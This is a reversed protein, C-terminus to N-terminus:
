IARVGVAIAFPYKFWINKDAVNRFSWCVGFTQRVAHSTVQAWFVIWSAARVIQGTLDWDLVMIIGEM